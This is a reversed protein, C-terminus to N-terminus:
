RSKQRGRVTLEIQWRPLKVAGHRQTSVKLWLM